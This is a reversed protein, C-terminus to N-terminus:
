AAGTELEDNRMCAAHCATPCDPGRPRDGEGSGSVPIRVADPAGCVTVSIFGGAEMGPCAPVAALATGACAGAALVAGLM